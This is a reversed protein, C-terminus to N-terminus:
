IRGNSSLPSPHIKYNSQACLMMSSFLLLSGVLSILKNMRSVILNNNFIINSHFLIKRGDYPLLLKITFDEPLRREKKGMRGPAMLNKM